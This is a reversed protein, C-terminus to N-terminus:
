NKNKKLIKTKVRVPLIQFFFFRDSFLDSSCVDSSWDRWYSTHRRRSSFFFLFLYFCFCFVFFFVVVFVGLKICGSTVDRIVDRLTVYKLGDSHGM